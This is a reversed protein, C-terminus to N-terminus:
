CVNAHEHDIEMTSERALPKRPHHWTKRLGSDVEQDIYNNGQTVGLTRNM